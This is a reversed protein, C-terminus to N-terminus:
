DIGFLYKSEIGGDTPIDTCYVANLVRDTGFRGRLSEPAIYGAIEVDYPGCLTRLVGQAKAEGRPTDLELVMCLGSALQDVNRSYEALVGKYSILFGEAQEKSLHM